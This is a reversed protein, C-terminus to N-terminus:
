MQKMWGKKKKREKKREKKMGDYEREGQKWPMLIASFDAVHCYAGSVRNKKKCSNFMLNMHIWADAILCHGPCGDYVLHFGRLLRRPHMAGSLMWETVPVAPNIASSFLPKHMSLKVQEKQLVHVSGAGSTGWHEITDGFLASLTFYSIDADSTPTKIFATLSEGISVIPPAIAPVISFGNHVQLKACAVVKLIARAMSTYIAFPLHLWTPTWTKYEPWRM